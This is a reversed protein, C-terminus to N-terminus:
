CFVASFYFNLKGMNRLKVHFSSHIEYIKDMITARGRSRRRNMYITSWVNCYLFEWGEDYEM